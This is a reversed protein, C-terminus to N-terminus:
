GISTMIKLFTKHAIHYISTVKRTCASRGKGHKLVVFCM